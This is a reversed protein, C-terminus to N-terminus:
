VGKKLRKGNKYHFLMIPVSNLDVQAFFCRLHHLRFKLKVNRLNYISLFKLTLHWKAILFLTIGRGSSIQVKSLVKIKSKECFNGLQLSNKVRIRLPLILV